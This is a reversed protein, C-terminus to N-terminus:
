RQALERWQARTMTLATEPESRPAGSAAPGEAGSAAVPAATGGVATGQQADAPVGRGQSPRRTPAPLLLTIGLLAVLGIVLPIAVGPTTLRQVASGWGSLQVAPQWVRDGVTYDLADSAANNDGKMSIQYTGDGTAAVKEIRHTVLNGTLESPLSVVDGVGLGETEVPVDILLDGTMIQPEMSGSIVILPKVLGMATAGWLVACLLGVAALTWLVVEALRRLLQMTM